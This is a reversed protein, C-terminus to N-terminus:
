KAHRPRRPKSGILDVTQRYEKPGFSFGDRLQDRLPKGAGAKARVQALGGDLEVARIREGTKFEIEVMSVVRDRRQPGLKIPLVDIRAVIARLADRVRKREEISGRRMAALKERYGKTPATQTEPEKRLKEEVRALQDGLDALPKALVAARTERQMIQKQMADVEAALYDREAVLVARADVKKAGLDLAPLLRFVMNEFVDVDVTESSAGAEGQVKRYSKYRCYKVRRGGARRLQYAFFGMPCDDAAHFLLGNLVNIRETSPGRETRRKLAEANARTWTKEEIVRPFYNEFSEGTVTSQLEGLVRRGKILEAVYTENWARANRRNSLPEFKENLEAVLRKRGIGDITRKFIYRIAKAAEPKVKFAGKPQLELWSPVTSSLRVDRGDRLDARQKSNVARVRASLNESYTHAQFAFAALEIAGGIDNRDESRYIKEVPTLIAIDVGADLIKNVLNQTARVGKRSLRDVAEVLLLEGPNVRGEDIAKVFANLARQKDGKFGSRGADTFKLESLTWGRRDCFDEAAQRQRRLSDGGEQQLSSFRAYSHVIM